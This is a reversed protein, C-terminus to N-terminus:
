PLFARAAQDLTIVEVLKSWPDESYPSNELETVAAKLMVAFVLVVAVIVGAVWRVSRPLPARGNPMHWGYACERGLARRLDFVPAALANAVGAPGAQAEATLPLGPPGASRDGPRFGCQGRARNFRM